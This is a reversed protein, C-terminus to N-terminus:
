HVACTKATIEQLIRQSAARGRGVVDAALGHEYVGPVRSRCREVLTVAEDWKLLVRIM